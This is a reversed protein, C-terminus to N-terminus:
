FEESNENKKEAIFSETVATHATDPNTTNSGGGLLMDRLKKDLESKIAENEKLYQSANAKGQG